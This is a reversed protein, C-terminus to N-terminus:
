RRKGKSVKLTVKAGPARHSGAKPKQSIVRGELVTRSYAKRVKGLACHHSRIARKAKALKKGKVKPVVCLKSFTATATRNTSM